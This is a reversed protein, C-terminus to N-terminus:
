RPAVGVLVHHPHLRGRDLRTASVTLGAQELTAATVRPDLFAFTASGETIRLVRVSLTEQFANWRVKWRPSSAMEKVVLRGGPALRAAASTLLRRQAEAPLLYLVDVVAIADWPGEPVVGDPVHELDLNPVGAAAASGVAIKDGDIDVGLVSRGPADLAAYAAFLGHGCGVELVRGSPPLFRVLRRFPASWWRIHVHVRSGAPARRFLALARRGAADPARGARDRASM